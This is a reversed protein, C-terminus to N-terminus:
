FDIECHGSGDSGFAVDGADVTEAQASLDCLIAQPERCILDETQVIGDVPCTCNYLHKVVQDCTTELETNEDLHGNADTGGCLILALPIIENQVWRGEVDLWANCIAKAAPILHGECKSLLEVLLNVLHAQSTTM